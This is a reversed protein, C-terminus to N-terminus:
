NAVGNDGATPAAAFLIMFGYGITLLIGLVSTTFHRLRLERNQVAKVGDYVMLVVSVFGIPLTGLLVLLMYSESVLSVLMATTTPIIIFAANYADRRKRDGDELVYYYQRFLIVQLLLIPLAFTTLLVAWSDNPQLVVLLLAYLVVACVVSGDFRPARTLQARWTLESRKFAVLVVAGAGVWWLLEALM